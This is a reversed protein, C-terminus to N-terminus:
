DNMHRVKVGADELIELSSDDRYAEDYIVEDIGSNIIAKACMRCPSLTVYM